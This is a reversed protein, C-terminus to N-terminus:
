EYTCGIWRRDVGAWLLWRAPSQLIEQEIAGNVARLVADRCGRGLEEGLDFFCEQKRSFIIAGYGFRAALDILGIPTKAPYSLFPSVANRTSEYAYDMMILIPHGEKMSRLLQQANNQKHFYFALGLEDLEQMWPVPKPLVTIIRSKAVAQVYQPYEPFHWCLLLKSRFFDSGYNNFSGTNRKHAASLLFDKWAVRHDQLFDPDPICGSRSCYHRYAWAAKRIMPEYNELFASLAHTRQEDDLATNEIFDIFQHENM